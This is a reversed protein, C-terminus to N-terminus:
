ERTVKVNLEYEGFPLEKGETNNIIYNNFTGGSQHCWGNKKHYVLEAPIIPILKFLYYSPMYYYVVEENECKYTRKYYWNNFGMLWWGFGSVRVKDPYNVKKPPESEFLVPGNSTDLMAGLSIM